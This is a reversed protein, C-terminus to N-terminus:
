RCVTWPSVNFPAAETQLDAAMANDPTAEGNRITWSAVQDVPADPHLVASFFPPDFYLELRTGAAASGSIWSESKRFRLHCRTARKLM